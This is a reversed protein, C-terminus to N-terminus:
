VLVLQMGALKKGEIAFSTLLYLLDLKSMTLEGALGLKM